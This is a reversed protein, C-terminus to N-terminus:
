FPVDDVSVLICLNVLEQVLMKSVAAYQEALVLVLAVIAYDNFLKIILVLENM